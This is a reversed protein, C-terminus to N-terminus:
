GKGKLDQFMEYAQAAPMLEHVVKSVAQIMAVPDESQFINRGMDVGAAGQDVAKFAMELAEREPLKKGGAIVIPVPCGATVREFGEEVFYSKVYHAGLEAAIRTALGFYRADRAMDKGVGTVALTPIGVRMGADILNIVNTISKHEYEAGIYVQAAMASVGMRVADDMAVAITENSLESLISNGGSARMVIPKRVTPPIVSRLIGRTCMLVDAYDFLPAINLDIRELGKTPGQFYGHDFALMVTRGSEPNFIRSMRNKIGWDYNAAGKLFFGQKDQPRDLGFDKGDKIDDIDAM